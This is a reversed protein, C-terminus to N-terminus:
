GVSPRSMPGPVVVVGGVDGELVVAAVVKAEVEVVVQVVKAEVEVVVKAEVEVVVEPLDVEMVVAAAMAVM